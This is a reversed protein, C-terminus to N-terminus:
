RLCRRCTTFWASLSAVAVPVMEERSSSASSLSSLESDSYFWRVAPPAPSRLKQSIINVCTQVGVSPSLSFALGDGARDGARDFRCRDARPLGITSM